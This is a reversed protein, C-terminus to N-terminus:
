ESSDAAKEAEGNLESVGEKIAAEGKEAWRALQKEYARFEGRWQNLEQTVQEATRFLEACKQEAEAKLRELTAKDM